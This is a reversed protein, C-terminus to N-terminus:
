GHYLYLGNCVGDQDVLINGTGDATTGLPDLRNLPISVQAAWAACTMQDHLTLPNAADAALAAIQARGLGVQTTPKIEGYRVVTPTADEVALDPTHGIPVNPEVVRHNGPGAHGLGLYDGEILGHIAAGLAMVNGHGPCNITGGALAVRQVLNNEKSTEHAIMAKQAVSSSQNDVFEFSQKVDSKKQTVSNVVARNKNEKPKEVQAYM